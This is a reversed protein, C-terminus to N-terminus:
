EGRNELYKKYETLIVRDAKGYASGETDEPTIIIVSLIKREGDEIVFNQIAMAFYFDAYEITHADINLGKNFLYVRLKRIIEWEVVKKFGKDKLEQLKLLYREELDKLREKFEEKDM